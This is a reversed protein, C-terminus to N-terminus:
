VLDSAQVENDDFNGLSLGLELQKVLSEISQRSYPGTAILRITCNRSVRINAIEEGQHNAPPPSMPPMFRSVYPQEVQTNSAANMVPLRDSIERDSDIEVLDGGSASEDMGTFTHNKLIISAAKPATASTFKMDFVLFHHLNAESPLEVPWREYVAAAVAPMKAAQRMFELKEQSEPRPDLLIRLALDTLRVKRSAGSGEDSMLGYSKLAGVTQLAASSSTSMNWHRVAVAFPAASRKEGSYYQQARDLATALPIYPFNPSRDKTSRSEEGM